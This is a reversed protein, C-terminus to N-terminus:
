NKGALPLHVAADPRNGITQRFRLIEWRLKKAKKALFRDPNVATPKGCFELLPLDTYSDSYFCVEDAPVKNEELWAQVATKKKGGFLSSGIIKGTTRGGSFELVSAISSEVSFFRELPRVLIDLTSTAFVVREGRAAADGILGAAGFFINPKIRKEFCSQAAQELTNQEIGALHKVADEIFDMNPQGLKYRLWEIPLRRIQRFRIIKRELAELLFYWASNKRIITNDVDFIHIM